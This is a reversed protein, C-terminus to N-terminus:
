KCYNGCTKPKEKKRRKKNSLSNIQKKKVEWERHPVAYFIQVTQKRLVLKKKTFFAVCNIHFNKFKTTFHIKTIEKHSNHSIADNHIKQNHKENEIWRSEKDVMKASVFIFWLVQSLKKHRTSYANFTNMIVAFGIGRVSFWSEIQKFSKKTNKYLIKVCNSHLDWPFGYVYCMFTFVNKVLIHSMISDVSKRENKMFRYLVAHFFTKEIFFSHFEISPVIDGKKHSCDVIKINIPKMSVQMAVAYNLKTWSTHISMIEDSTSSLWLRKFSFTRNRCLSGMTLLLFGYSEVFNVTINCVFNILIAYLRNTIQFKGNYHRLLDVSFHFRNSNAWIIFHM